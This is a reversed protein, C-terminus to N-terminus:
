LAVDRISSQSNNSVSGILQELQSIPKDGLLSKVDFGSNAYLDRVTNEDQHYAWDNNTGLAYSSQLTELSYM